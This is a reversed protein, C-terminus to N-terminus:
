AGEMTMSRRYGCIGRFYGAAEPGLGVAEIVALLDHMQPIDDVLGRMVEFISALSRHTPDLFSAVDVDQGSLILLLKDRELALDPRPGGAALARHAEAGRELAKSARAALAVIEPRMRQTTALREEVAERTARVLGDGPLPPASKLFGRTM